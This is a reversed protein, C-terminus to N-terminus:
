DAQIMAINKLLKVLGCVSIKEDVQYNEEGPVVFFLEDLKLFSVIKRHIDTVKPSQSYKIEFGIRRGGRILLLDLEMQGHVSWFYTEEDTARYARVVEELAFGEWSAGLKPNVQLASFNPIGLLQHFIGSDRFYIKPRKIQRKGINEHWPNLRRIMFTGVLIDLYNKVTTDAKEMSRGIESAQFIQGHYHALMMWFRRLTTAPILIGLQPIDRELYTRVYGERWAASLADDGALYSPPFGGRVWIRDLPEFGVEPLSFPHVDLFTIRGALSESSQRILDRSASGLILFKVKPEPRDALIRLIPFIEPVRQIEDLVVLNKLGELALKPNQLRGLHVPDELDFFNTEAQFTEPYQAVYQKALTTKGCQRPGLLAVIPTVRFARDILPYYDNRYM